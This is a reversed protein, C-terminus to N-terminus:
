FQAGLMHYRSKLRTGIRTDAKASDYSLKPCVALMWNGEVPALRKSGKPNRSHIDVEPRIRCLVDRSGCRVPEGLAMGRCAILTRKM